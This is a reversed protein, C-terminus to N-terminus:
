PECGICVAHAEALIEKAKKQKIGLKKTLKKETYHQIESLTVIDKKLCEKVLREDISKLITIPFHAYRECNEALSNGHPQRWGMLQMQVGNAYKRAQKTFRTNTVIAPHTFQKQVDLFRAYTYLATQVDSEIWPKQHHKCEIMLTQQKRKATIDIEHTIYRGQVIRNCTTIYGKKEFLKAIFLEFSYGQNQGLRQIAGKLNYKSAVLPEQKRYEKLVIKFLKRTSIGNHIKKKTAKLVAKITAQDAGSRRLSAEVKRPSYREKQGNSKIVYVM